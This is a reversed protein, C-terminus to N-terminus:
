PVFLAFFVAIRGSAFRAALLHLAGVAVMCAPWGWFGAGFLITVFGVVIWILGLVVLWFRALTVAHKSPGDREYAIHSEGAM